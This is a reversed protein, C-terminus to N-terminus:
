DLNCVDVGFASRFEAFLAFERVALGLNKFGDEWRIGVVLMILLSVGADSAHVGSRVKAFSLDVGLADYHFVGTHLVNFSAPRLVHVEGFLAIDFAKAFFHFLIFVILICHLSEHRHHLTAHFLVVGHIDVLFVKFINLRVM